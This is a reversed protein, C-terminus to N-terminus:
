YFQFKIFYNIVALMELQMLATYDCLSTLCVRINHFIYIIFIHTRSETLQPWM